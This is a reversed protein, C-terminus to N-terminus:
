IFLQSFLFFFFISLFVVGEKRTLKRKYLFFLNFLILAVLLIIFSFVIRPTAALEIPHILIVLGLIPTNAIASGLFDGIGVQTHKKKIATFMITMEPLNTTFPLILLGLIILSISIQLSIFELASIVIQAGLTLGIIGLVMFLIIKKIHHHGTVQRIHEVLTQRSNMIIMFAIYIEILILGDLRSLQNDIIFLGPIIIVLSSLLLDKLRYTKPFFVENNIIANVGIIFTLLMISAGLLNGFSIQPESRISSNLGIFIEPSSTAIGLVFLGINFDSVHFIRALRVASEVILDASKALIFSAIIISVFAIGLGM